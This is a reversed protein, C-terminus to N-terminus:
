CYLYSVQHLGADLSAAMSSPPPQVPMNSRKGQNKRTSHRGHNAVNINESQEKAEKAKKNHILDGYDLWITLMRPMVHMEFRTGSDM